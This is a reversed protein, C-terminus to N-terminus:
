NSFLLNILWQCMRNTMLYDAAGGHLFLRMIGCPMQSVRACALPHHLARDALRPAITLIGRRLEKAPSLKFPVEFLHFEVFAADTILTTDRTGSERGNSCLKRHAGRKDPIEM